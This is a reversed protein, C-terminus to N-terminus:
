AQLDHFIDQLKSTATEALERVADLDASAQGVFKRAINVAQDQLSDWDGGAFSVNDAATHAEERGFYQDSSIARSNTFQSLRTQEAASVAPDYENRGFYQDSSIARANGFKERASQAPMDTEESTHPLSRSSWAGGGAGASAATATATTNLRAMGFGLKEVEQDKEDQYALRSSQFRETKAQEQGSHQRAEKEEEDEAVGLKAKREGEAKARAEAEDFNFNVPAKKIGLKSGPKAGLRSRNSRIATRTTTTMASRPPATTAPRAAPPATAVPTSVPVAPAPPTMSTPPETPPSSASVSTTTPTSTEMPAQDVPTDIEIVVTTPHAVADDAARKELLKKYQQGARSTYKAKADNNSGHSANKSFFESASQNGGVSMLRLQDWTWADLVTSRVFSIHVGMNRHTSSCDTCLYIGFSVSAWTPNKSSCDFCVKNYRNQKLKKFVLQIQDKTPEPM